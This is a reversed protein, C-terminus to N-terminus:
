ITKVLPTTEERMFHMWQDTQAQEFDDAGLLNTKGSKRVIYNVIAASDSLFNSADVELVPFTAHASAKEIKKEEDSGKKVVVEEVKVGCLNAVIMIFDASM